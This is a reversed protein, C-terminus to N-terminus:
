EAQDHRGRMRNRTLEHVTRLVTTRALLVRHASADASWQSLGISFCICWSDAQLAILKSSWSNKGCSETM